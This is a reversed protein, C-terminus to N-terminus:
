ATLWTFRFERKKNKQFSEDLENVLKQTREFEQHLSRITAQLEQSKTDVNKARAAPTLYKKKQMETHQDMRENTEKIQRSIDDLHHDIKTKPRSPVTRLYDKWLSNFEEEMDRIHKTQIHKWESDTFERVKVVQIPSYYSQLFEIQRQIRSSYKSKHQLIWEWAQQDAHHLVDSIGENDVFWDRSLLHDMTETDYWENIQTPTISLTTMTSRTLIFKM